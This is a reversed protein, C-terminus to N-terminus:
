SVHAITCCKISEAGAFKLVKVCEKLTNGTTIIDDCLLIKKGKIDKFNIAKYVGRVNIAREESSLEHQPFNDKIKIIVEKYPIKLNESILRALLESQNYRRESKRKKSLPVASIVDFKMNNELMRNKIEKSIIQSFYEAYNQYGYFKFKCILDRIKGDYKFVSLCEALEGGIQIIPRNQISFNIGNECEKCVMNEFDMPLIKSCLICRPPFILDLFKNIIKNM